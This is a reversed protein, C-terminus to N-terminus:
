LWLKLHYTILGSGRKVYHHHLEECSHNSHRPGLPLISNAASHDLWEWSPPLTSSPISKVLGLILLTTVLINSSWKSAGANHLIAINVIEMMIQIELFKNLIKRCCPCKIMIKIFWPTWMWFYPSQTGVKSLVCINSFM